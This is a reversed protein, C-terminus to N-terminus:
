QGPDPSNKDLLEKLVQHELSLNAYMIKLRQNEEKLEKLQRLLDDNSMGDGSIENASTVSEAQEQILNDHSPLRRARSVPNTTEPIKTKKTLIKGLISQLQDAMDDYTLIIVAVAFAIFPSLGPPNSPDNKLALWMLRGGIGLSGLIVVLRFLIWRRSQSASLPSKESTFEEQLEPNISM